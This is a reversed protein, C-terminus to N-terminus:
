RTYREVDDTYTSRKCQDMGFNVSNKVEVIAGWGSIVLLLVGMLAYALTFYNLYFNLVIGGIVLIFSIWLTWKMSKKM